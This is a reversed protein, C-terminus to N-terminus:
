ASLRSAGVESSGWEGGEAEGPVSHGSEGRLEWGGKTQRLVASGPMPGMLEMKLRPFAEKVEPSMTWPPPHNLQTMYAVDTVEGLAADRRAVASGFEVVKTVGYCINGFGAHGGDPRWNKRGSATLEYRMGAPNAEDADIKTRVLLGQGVLAELGDRGQADAADVEVPLEVPEFWLCAPEGEYFRNIAGVM